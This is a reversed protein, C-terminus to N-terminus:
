PTIVRTSLIATRTAAVRGEESDPAHRVIARYFDLAGDIKGMKELNQAIPFQARARRAAEEAQKRLRAERVLQEERALAVERRKRELTEPSNREEADIRSELDAALMVGPSAAASPAVLSKLFM